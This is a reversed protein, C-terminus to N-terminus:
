RYMAKVTSWTAREAAVPPPCQPENICAMYCEEGTCSYMPLILGPNIGDTYNMHGPISSFEWPEVGFCWPDPSLILLQITLLTICPSWPLPMALWVDFCPETADNIAGPPYGYGTVYISSGVPPALPTGDENCLCFEYGSVGAPQTSNMLVVYADAPGGVFPLCNECVGCDELFLICIENPDDHCQAFSNGGALSGLLLLLLLKKM